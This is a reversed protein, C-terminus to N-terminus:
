IVLQQINQIADAARENYKRIHEQENKLKRFDYDSKNEIVEVPFAANLGELKLQGERTTLTGNLVQSVIDAIQFVKPSDTVGNTLSKYLRKQRNIELHIKKTYKTEAAVKTLNRITTEIMRLQGHLTSHRDIMVINTIRNDHPNANKHHMEIGNETCARFIFELQHHHNWVLTGILIMLSPPKGLGRTVIHRKGSETYDKPRLKCAPTEYCRPKPEGTDFWCECTLCKQYTVYLDYIEQTIKTLGFPNFQRQDFTTNYLDHPFNWNPM